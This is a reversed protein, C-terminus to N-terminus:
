NLINFILARPNFVTNGCDVVPKLTIWCMQTSNLNKRRYAMLEDTNWIKSSFRVDSDIISSRLNDQIWAKSIDEM